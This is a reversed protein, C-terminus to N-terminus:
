TISSQAKRLRPCVYLREPWVYGGESVIISDVSYFPKNTGKYLTSTERVFEGRKRQLVRTKNQFTSNYRETLELLCSLFHAYM